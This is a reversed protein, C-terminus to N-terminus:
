KPISEIIKNIQAVIPEYKELAKPPNAERDRWTTLEFTPKELKELELKKNALTEHLEAVFDFDILDLKEQLSLKEFDLNRSKAKNKIIELLKKSWNKIYPNIFGDIEEEKLIDNLSYIGYVQQGNIIKILFEYKEIEWELDNIQKMDVNWDKDEKSYLDDIEEFKKVIGGEENDYKQMLNTLLIILKTLQRLKESIQLVEPNQLFNEYNKSNQLVLDKCYNKALEELYYDKQKMTEPDLSIFSKWFKNNIVVTFIENIKSGLRVPVIGISDLFAAVLPHSLDHPWIYQSFDGILDSNNDTILELKPNKGTSEGVELKYIKPKQIKPTQHIEASM